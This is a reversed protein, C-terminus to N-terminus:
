DLLSQSQPSWNLLRRARSMNHDIELEDGSVFIAEFNGHGTGVHRLAALYARALDEEDTVFLPGAFNKPREKREALYEERTRPGTIRLAVINMGFWTAFYACINEGLGKTFGYVSPSDLSTLNEDTYVYRGMRARERFHVSMTSTHVGRMINMSQATFLLLHLGLTNVAYNSQILEIDQETSAGGQAGMMVLNIFTDCGNLAAKLVTPDCISGEIFEVDKSVPPRIDLVRLEHEELLYPTIFTGVKGSGGILLVKM